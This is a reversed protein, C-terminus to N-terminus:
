SIHTQQWRQLIDHAAKATREDISSVSLLLWHSQEPSHVLSLGICHGGIKPGLRRARLVILDKRAQSEQPRLRLQLIRENQQYEPNTGAALAYRNEYLPEVHQIETPLTTVAVKESVHRGVFEFFSELARM